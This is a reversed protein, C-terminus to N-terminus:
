YQGKKKEEKMAGGMQSEQLPTGLSPSKSGGIKGGGKCVLM